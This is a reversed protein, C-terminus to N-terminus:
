LDVNSSLLDRCSGSDLVTNKRTNLCMSNHLLKPGDVPPRTPFCAFMRPYILSIGYAEVRFLLRRLGLAEFKRVGQAGM